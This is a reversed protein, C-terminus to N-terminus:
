IFASPSFKPNKTNGLLHLCSTFSATLDRYYPFVQNVQCVNTLAHQISDWFLELDKLKDGQLKIRELEKTFKSVSFDKTETQAFGLKPKSSTTTTVSTSSKKLDQIHQTIPAINTAVTRSIVEDIAPSLTLNRIHDFTTDNLLSLVQSDSVSLSELKTLKDSFTNQMEELKTTVMRVKSELISRTSLLSNDIDMRWESRASTIISDVNQSVNDLKDSLEFRLSKISSDVDNRLTGLTTFVSAVKTDIDVNTTSITSEVDQLDNQIALKFHDLAMMLTTLTPSDDPPLATAHQKPDKSSSCTPAM